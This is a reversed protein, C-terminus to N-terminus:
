NGNYSIKQYEFLVSDRFKNEYFTRIEFLFGRDDYYYKDMFKTNLYYKNRPFGNQHFDFLITSNPHYMVKTLIKNRNRNYYKMRWLPWKIITKIGRDVQFVEPIYHYISDNVYQFSDVIIPNGDQIHYRLLIKGHENEEYNNQYSYTHISEKQDFSIISAFELSDYKITKNFIKNTWESNKIKIKLKELRKPNNNIKIRKKPAIRSQSIINNKSDYCISDKLLHLKKDTQGIGFFIREIVKGSENITYIEKLYKDNTNNSVTQYLFVKYKQGTTVFQDEIEFYETQGMVILPALSMILICTIFKTKLTTQFM